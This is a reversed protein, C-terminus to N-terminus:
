CRHARLSVPSVDGDGAEVEGGGRREAGGGWAGRGGGGGDVRAGQGERVGRRAGRALATARPGHDGAGRRCRESRRPALRRSSGRPSLGAAASWPSCCARCGRRSPSCAAAPPLLADMTTGVHQAISAALDPDVPHVAIAMQRLQNGDPHSGGAVLSPGDPPLRRIASRDAEPEHPAGARHSRGSSRTTPPTGTAMTTVCEPMSHLAQPSSHLPAIRWALRNPAPLTPSFACPDVVVQRGM